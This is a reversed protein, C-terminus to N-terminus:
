SLFRDRCCTLDLKYRGGLVSMLDRHPHLKFVVEVKVLGIAEQSVSWPGPKLSGPGHNKRRLAQNAECRGSDAGDVNRLVHPRLRRNRLRRRRNGSRTRRRTAAALLRGINQTREEFLWARRSVRLLRRGTRPVQYRSDREMGAAVM